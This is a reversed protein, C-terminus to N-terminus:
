AHRARSVPNGAAVWGGALLGILVLIGVAGVLKRARRAAAPSLPRRAEIAGAAGVAAGALLAAALM